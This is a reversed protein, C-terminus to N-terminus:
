AAEAYLELPRFGSREDLEPLDYHEHGGIACYILWHHDQVNISLEDILVEAEDDLQDLSDILYDLDPSQAQPM